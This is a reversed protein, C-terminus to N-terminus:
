PWLLGLYVFTIKKDGAQVETADRFSIYTRGEIGVEELKKRVIERLQDAESVDQDQKLQYSEELFLRQETLRAVQGQAVYVPMGFENLTNVIDYESIM